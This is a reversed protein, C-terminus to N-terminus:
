SSFPRQSRRQSVEGEQPFPPKGRVVTNKSVQSRCSTVLLSTNM